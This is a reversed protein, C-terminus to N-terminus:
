LDCVTMEVPIYSLYKEELASLMPEVENGWSLGGLGCGIRPLYIPLRVRRSYELVYTMAGEIAGVDAYKVGPERGYDIQTFCHAVYLTYLQRNTVDVIHATRYLARLYEPPLEAYAKYAKPWKERIAKAVGSNMKGQCNVGHAVIGREITTIDKQVYKM